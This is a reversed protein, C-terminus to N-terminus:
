ALLFANAHEVVLVMVFVPEENVHRLGVPAAQQGPWYRKITGRPVQANIRSLLWRRPRSERRVGALGLVNRLLRRWAWSLRCGFLLKRMGLLIGAVSFGRM